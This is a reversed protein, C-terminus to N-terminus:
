FGASRMLEEGTLVTKSKTKSLLKKDKKDKKEKEKEKEKDKDNKGGTNGSNKSAPLTSPDYVGDSFARGRNPVGSQKGGLHYDMADLMHVASPIEASQPKLRHQNQLYRQHSLRHQELLLIEQERMQQQEQLLQQQTLYDHHQPHHQQPPQYPENDMQMQMQLRKKALLTREDAQYDDVGYGGISLPQSTYTHQQFSPSMPSPYANPYYNTGGSVGQALGPSSLPSTYNSEVGGGGGGRGGGGGGGGGSGTSGSSSGAGSGLTQQPRISQQHRPASSSLFVPEEEMPTMAPILRQGGNYQQLLGEAVFGGDTSLSERSQNMHALHQMQSFSTSAPTSAPPVRNSSSRILGGLGRASEVPGSSTPLPPLQKGDTANPVYSATVPVSAASIAKASLSPTRSPFTRMALGVARAQLGMEGAILATSYIRVPHAHVTQHLIDMTLAYLGNLEYRRALILLYDAMGASVVSPLAGTYLYQLFLPIVEDPVPLVLILPTVYPPSLLLRAFEPWRAALLTSNAGFLTGAASALHMDGLSPNTLLDQGLEQAPTPLSPVPRDYLGFAQLNILMLHDHHQMRNAYDQEPDTNHNGFILLTGTAPHLLTRNWSGEDLVNDTSLREWKYSALNFAYIALTPGKGPVILTGTVILQNQYVHGQPFRLGPPLEAGMMTLAQSKEVVSFSPPPPVPNIPMTMASAVGATSHTYHPTIVKFDRKLNQFNYNSYLYISPVDRGAKFAPTLEGSMLREPPKRKNDSQPASHTDNMEEEKVSSNVSSPASIRGSLVMSISAMADVPGSDSLPRALNVSTQPSSANASPFSPASPEAATSSQKSPGTAAVTRYSGCQGISPISSVWEWTRLDLVCADEVYDKQTDTGGIVILYHDLITAMHAWRPKPFHPNAAPRKQQWRQSILDFVWLDNLAALKGQNGSSAKSATNDNDKSDKNGEEEDDQVRGMGGFLILSTGFTNLTHFYRPPPMTSALDRPTSEVPDTTLSLSLHTPEEGTAMETDPDNEADPNATGGSTSTTTTNVSGPPAAEYIVEWVCTEVDLVYHCNTLERNELRGGFCHLASDNALVIASGILPPPHAGGTACSTIALAKTSLQTPPAPAPPAQPSRRQQLQHHQQQQQAYQLASTAAQFLSNSNFDPPSTAFM